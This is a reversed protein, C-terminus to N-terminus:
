SNNREKTTTFIAILAQVVTIDTLGYAVGWATVRSHEFILHGRISWTLSMEPPYDIFLSFRLVAFLTTVIAWAIPWKLWHYFVLYFFTSFISFILCYSLSMAAFKRISHWEWYWLSYKLISFALALFFISFFSRFFINIKLHALIKEKTEPKM